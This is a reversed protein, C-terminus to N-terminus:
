KEFTSSARAAQADMENHSPLIFYLLLYGLLISGGSFFLLSLFLLRVLGPDMDFRRAFRSCVGLLKPKKAEAIKSKRPICVAILFYLLLSVGLFLVSFLFAIRVLVVDIDFRESLGKCVGLFIGQDSRYLVAESDVYDTQVPIQTM